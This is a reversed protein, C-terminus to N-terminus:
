VRLAFCDTNSGVSRVKPYGRDALTLYAVNADIIYHFTMPGAELSMRKPQGSGSAAMRKFLTQLVVHVRATM